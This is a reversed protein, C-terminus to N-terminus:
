AAASRDEPPIWVASLQVVCSIVAAWTVAWDWPFAFIVPLVSAVAVTLIVSTIRFVAPRYEDTHWWWRRLGFLLGFFVIFALMTPRSDILLPQRGLTVFAAQHRLHESTLEVMLVQSLWWACAGIGMGLAVSLLRRPRGYVTRGELLKGSVLLAWTALLTTITFLGLKAPDPQLSGPLGFLPSLFGTGVAFLLTLIVAWCMSVSLDALRQRGSIKRITLPTCSLGSSRPKLKQPIPPPVSTPQTPESISRAVPVIRPDHSATVQAAPERSGAFLYHSFPIKDRRIFMWGLIMLPSFLATIIAGMQVDHPGQNLGAAVCILMIQAWFYFGIRQIWFGFFTRDWSHLRDVIWDAYDRIEWRVSSATGRDDFSNGLRERTSPRLFQFALYTVAFLSFFAGEGPARFAVSFLGLASLSTFGLIALRRTWWATSYTAQSTGPPLGHWLWRLGSGLVPEFRLCIFIIPWWFTLSSVGLQAPSGYFAYALWLLGVACASRHLWWDMQPIDDISAPATPTQKAHQPADALTTSAFPFPVAAFTAGAPSALRSPASPSTPLVPVAPDHSGIPSAFGTPTPVRPATERVPLPRGQLASEFEEFLQTISGTRTKPDKRLAGDIANRFPAPVISLDPTESLHKMLIEGTSQGDFPLRGTLMEYLMVGCSYIDVEYGYKGYTVEPAMYYVTGVSETHASRRSPSMFKSLGVDGIKISGEDWFLNGPKIDRHVIGRDHLYALGSEVGRMWREIQDLPLPGRQKLLVQELTDGAIYEMIVWHDQDADTKVDYIAVLHPHRLNLCHQVGRLEVEMNQQLLKIAVEKGADSLGYYVEGFGGRAIGRKLTYGELPRSEPAFTFKM